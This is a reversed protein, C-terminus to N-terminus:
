RKKKIWVIKFRNEKIRIIHYLPKGRRWLSLGKPVNRKSPFRLCRPDRWDFYSDPECTAGFVLSKNDCRDLVDKRWSIRRLLEKFLKEQNKVRVMANLDCPLIKKCIQVTKIKM